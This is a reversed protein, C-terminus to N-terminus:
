DLVRKVDDASDGSRMRIWHHDAIELRHDSTFSFHLHLLDGPALGIRDKGTDTASRVRHANEIRVDFLAGHPQDADLSCPQAELAPFMSSRQGGAFGTHEM